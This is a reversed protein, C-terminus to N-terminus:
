RNRQVWGWGVCAVEAAVERERQKSADSQRRLQQKNNEEMRQVQLLLCCCASAPPVTRRAGHPAVHFELPRKKARWTATYAAHSCVGLRNNCESGSSWWLHRQRRGHVHAFTATTAAALMPTHQLMSSCATVQRDRLQEQLARQQEELRASHLAQLDSIVNHRM